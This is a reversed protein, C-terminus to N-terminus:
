LVPVCQIRKNDKDAVFLVHRALLHVATPNNLQWPRAGAGSGGLLTNSIGKHFRQVRHNGQDAVYLVSGVVDVTIGVPLRLVSTQTVVQCPTKPDKVVKPWMSVRHSHTECVIVDGNPVLFIGAPFSTQFKFAGSGKGGAVMVGEKANREWKVVRHNYQDAVYVTGSRQCVVVAVPTNLKNLDSGCGNGGAVVEGTTAGKAWKMVRSNETDCVYVTEESDVFVGTPTDLQNLANGAGNGGSVVVRNGSPLELRWVVHQNASSVYIAGSKPSVFLDWSPSGTDDGEEQNTEEDEEDGGEDESLEHEEAEDDRVTKRKIKEAHPPQPISTEAPESLVPISLPIQRSWLFNRVVGTFLAGTLQPADPAARKVAETFTILQLAQVHALFTPPEQTVNQGPRPKADAESKFRYLPLFFGKEPEIM